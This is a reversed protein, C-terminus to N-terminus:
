AGGFDRLFKVDLIQSDTNVRVFVELCVGGEGDYKGDGEFVTHYHPLCLGESKLKSSMSSGLSNAGDPLKEVLLNHRM